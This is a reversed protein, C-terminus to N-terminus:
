TPKVTGIFAIAGLLAYLTLSAVVTNSVARAVAEEREPTSGLQGIELFPAQLPHLCVDIAIACWYALGFLLFKDAFWIDVLPAGTALSNLGIVVFILGVIAQSLMRLRDVVRALTTGENRRIVFISAVWFLTLGWAVLFLQTTMPYLNLAKTLHLGVPLMLALCARPFGELLNALKVLAMRAEFSRRPNRAMIFALVVGVHTGLWFVLLLIHVYSWILYAQM